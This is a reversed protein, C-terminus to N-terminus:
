TVDGMQDRGDYIRQIIRQIYAAEAFSPSAPRRECACRVFHHQSAVHGRLWGIPFRPGPFASKSEADKNVTELATFGRDGRFPGPRDRADYVQLFNPNMMEYRIAGATGYLEYNMDDNSGAMVKSVEVSGIMANKMRATLLVHDEGEVQVPKGDPGPRQPYLILRNMRVNEFEGFFHYILDLAHCAMEILVGGGGMAKDQKWGMPKNPDLNSSHYYTMRFSIPRELFGQEILLRTKRVAPFFRYHFAVQQARDSKRAAALITDAEQVTACLPKDAYVHKGAALASTIQQCHFKTPTSVDIIDIDERALLDAYRDTAFQFGFTDKLQQAQNLDSDCIGILKIRVPLDDYFLPMTLYNYTHTRGMFGAGIIGVGFTKKEM